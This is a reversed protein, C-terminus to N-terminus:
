HHATSGQIGGWDGSSRSHMTIELILEERKASILLKKPNPMEAGTAHYVTIEGPNIRRVNIMVDCCLSHGTATPGPDVIWM